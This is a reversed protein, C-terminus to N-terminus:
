HRPRCLYHSSDSCGPAHDLGLYRSRPAGLPAKGRCSLSLRPEAPELATFPEPPRHLLAAAADAPPAMWTMPSPASPVSAEALLANVLLPSCFREDADALAQIFIDKQFAPYAPYEHLFYSHLLKRMLPNDTTVSTWRAVDIDALRPDVIAAAHYPQLYVAMHADNAPPPPSLHRGQDRDYFTAEYVLSRLYPNDATELPAPMAVAYPFEYRRRTEPVLSLQLLLNGDAIQRVVTAVDAGLRIMNLIARSDHEDMTQMAAFLQQYHDARQQVEGM